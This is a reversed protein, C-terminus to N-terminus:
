IKDSDNKNQRIKPMRQYRRASPNGINKISDFAGGFGDRMNNIGEKALSVGSKLYDSQYKGENFDWKKSLDQLGRNGKQELMRGYTRAVPNNSSKLNTGRSVQSQMKESAKKMRNAIGSNIKPSITGLKGVLGGAVQKTGKAFQGIGKTGVATGKIAGLGSGVAGIGIGMAQSIGGSLGQMTMMMDRGSNASVNEGIFRNLSNCGVMIMMACGLYLITQTVLKTFFPLNNIDPSNQIVNFMITTLGILLMMAGAQLILSVLQQYLASRQEKRGVSTAIVLPSIVMLFALELQRRGLMLVGFGIAFLFIAGIVIGFLFNYNFVYVEKDNSGSRCRVQLLDNDFIKDLTLNNERILTEFDEMTKVSSVDVVGNLEKKLDEVNKKDLDEKGKVIYCSSNINLYSTKMKEGITSDQVNFNNYIANSLNIGLGISTNFILYILFILFGCKVIEKVIEFMSQENSDADLIKFTVKWVSFLFLVAFSLIFFANFIKVFPSNNINKLMDILNLSNIKYAVTYLVDITNFLINVIRIGILRLLDTIAFGIESAINLFLM